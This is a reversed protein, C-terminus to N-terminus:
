ENAKKIMEDLMQETFNGRSFGVIKIIPMESLMMSMMEITEKPPQNGGTMAKVMQEFIPTILLNGKPHKFWDKILSFKGLPINYKRTVNVKFSDKLKIDQSSAGIMVEFDGTEAMWDKVAPNYYVYDNYGLEFTVTKEEGPQLSVKTFAKLEKVPRPLLSVIDRVYLQVVEKGEVTGTNKINCQVTIYSTDSIEKASLKLNSYEFTTYSLGYGFPFFTKIDKIDYYRYGIFIGEGYRVVSNEGPFNLFSPNDELRSPYTEALKGSPNVKGFLVDAIAGGSAQGNLGGLVVSKVSSFWPLIISSGNNLVVVTNKQKAAIAEIMQNHNPPMNMHKRDFGESEYSAPLGAFIVAIDASEAVKVAEEIISNNIVDENPYGDAYTIVIDKGAIKQIEDLPIDVQTPRLSASGGGNYRPNKAFNGIVAVRKYKTVNLPLLNDNNKLLVICGGAVSRALQHHKEKDYTENDKKLDHAKFILALLKTVVADLESEKLRGNKVADVIQKDTAGGSGPMELDMHARIGQVRNNVAGWDSVVIGKFGWEKRLIDNLLYENESSFVGNIMNYSSMVTWPQAEKVAIEFGKLYIERLTREDVEASVTMRGNEQNNCAFHKLSTGVGKSQVGKIFAAGIKGALLPDESYYEFNRGCLPSRKMNIGPGLIIQVHNSQCENGIAKGMEEILETDWSNALSSGAPFCTAPIIKEGFGESTESKRLGHPGDTMWIAPIQLRSIEKTTWFDKGSCLSAKEELTMKKVIDTIMMTSNDNKQAKVMFPLLILIFSLNKM